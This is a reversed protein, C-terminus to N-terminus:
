GAEGAMACGSCAAPCIRGSESSSVGPGQALAARAIRALGAIFPMAVSVTPVRIYAPVGARAALAGYDMDLEVLTESHESVFAIPAVVLALGERGAEEISADTAPGIWALPGVRSQYCLKWDLGSVGLRAVAAACSREVQWPYPDGRAVIREPLGHASFLLRTRMRSPVRTLGEEVKDVLAEIFGLEGPYCCVLRTPAQLGVRAAAARWAQWSSGTTTTSFQPYLPLLLVHDPAFQKVARATDESMPHWYRMAVFCRLEGEGALAAELARAQAKTNPLLPSGGGMKAYIERAVPGRRRAILRALLYRLPAPLAIIAPDNFLNFLFPEVAELRDPGGLNFLVLATRPQSM